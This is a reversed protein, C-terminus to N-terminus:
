LALKVFKYFDTKMGYKELQIKIKHLYLSLTFMPYKVEIYDLLYQNYKEKSKYEKKNILSHMICFTFYENENIIEKDGKLKNYRSKTSEIRTDEKNCIENCKEKLKDLSEIRAKQLEYLMQKQETNETNFDKIIDWMNQLEIHKFKKDGLKENETELIEIFISSLKIPENNKINKNIYFIDIVSSFYYQIFEKEEENFSIGCTNFATDDRIKDILMDNALAKVALLIYPFLRIPDTNITNLRKDYKMINRYYEKLNNYLEKDIKKHKYMNDFESFIDGKTHMFTSSIMVSMFQYICMYIKLHNDPFQTYQMFIDSIIVPLYILVNDKTTSQELIEPRNLLISYCKILKEIDSMHQYGDINEMFINKEYEKEINHLLNTVMPIEPINLQNIDINQFLLYMQKFFYTPEKMLTNDFTRKDQPLNSYIDKLLEYNNQKNKAM